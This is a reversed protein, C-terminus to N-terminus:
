LRSTYDLSIWGGSELKGWKNAGPGSAEEVIAYSGKDKISGSAGFSTGPGTRINLEAATVRVRYPLAAEGLKAKFQAWAADNEASGCFPGPCLKRTVDYHRVVQSVPIGYKAMYEKTLEIASQVTEPYFHWQDGSLYCCLEIGISNTNRVNNYYTGTTGCHWAIDKDAVSRYVEGKHGVFLHASSGVKEKAFYRCNALAGGAAGVFHIVIHQIDAKTRNAATCNIKTLEETVKVAM